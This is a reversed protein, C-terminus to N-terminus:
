RENQSWLKLNFALSQKWVKLEITISYDTSTSIALVVPRIGIYLFITKRAIEKSETEMIFSFSQLEFPHKSYNFIKEAKV